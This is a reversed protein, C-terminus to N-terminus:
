RVRRGSGDTRIGNLAALQAFDGYLPRATRSRRPRRRSAAVTRAEEESAYVDGEAAVVSCRVTSGPQSAGTVVVFGAVDGRLELGHSPDSAPVVVADHFAGVYRSSHLVHVTTSASTTM